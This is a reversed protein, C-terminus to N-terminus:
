ESRLSETRQPGPGVDELTVEEDFTADVMVIGAVKDPHAEACASAVKGVGVARTLM